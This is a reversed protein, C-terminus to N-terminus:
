RFINVARAVVLGLVALSAAAQVTMALKAWRALPMVDTPSFATANTFGLYIYDPFEPRWGPPALNPNLQQPFALDPFEPPDWIRAEPGRGDALWYLFVFAIITYIWVGGGVELLDAASNTEPGGEVLDVLLRGTVFAAAVILVFVLLFSLARVVRSRHQGHSHDAVLIAALLLAEAAPILWNPGLRFRPPLLLLVAIAVALAAALAWRREAGIGTRVVETRSHRQRDDSRTWWDRITAEVDATAHGGATAGDAHALLARAADMTEAVEADSNGAPVRVVIWARQPGAEARVPVDMAQALRQYCRIWEASVSASLPLRAVVHARSRRLDIDAEPDIDTM